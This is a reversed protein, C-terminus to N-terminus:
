LWPVSANNCQRWRHLVDSTPTVKPKEDTIEQDLLRHEFPRKV